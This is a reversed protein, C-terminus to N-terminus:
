ADGELQQVVAVSVQQTATAIGQHTLEAEIFAAM